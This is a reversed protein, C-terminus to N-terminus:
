SSGIRSDIMYLTAFSIAYIHYKLNRHDVMLMVVSCLLYIPLNRQEVSIVHELM